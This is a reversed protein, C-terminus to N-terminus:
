MGVDIFLITNIFFPSQTITLSLHHCYYPCVTSEPSDGVDCASPLSYSPTSSRHLSLSSSHCTTVIALACLVVLVQATVWTVHRVCQAGAGVGLVDAAPRVDDFMWRLLEGWLLSPPAAGKAHEKDQYLFVTRHGATNIDDKVTRHGVTNIDDKVTRHGATNIDDKVTRHGVTNIDDKVTRHGVTNIGDKATRHGVTNIDDKATRHGV